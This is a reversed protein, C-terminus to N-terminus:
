RGDMARLIISICRSAPLQCGAAVVGPRLPMKHIYECHATEAQAFAFGAVGAAAGARAVSTAGVRRLTRLALM